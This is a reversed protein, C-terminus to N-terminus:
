RRFRVAPKYASGPIYHKSGDPAQRINYDPVTVFLAKLPTVLSVVLAIVLAITPPSPLARAFVQLERGLRRLTAGRDGGESRLLSRAKEKVLEHLSNPRTSEEQIERVASFRGTPSSVLSYPGAGAVSADHTMAAISSVHSRTSQNTRQHTLTPFAPSPSVATSSGISTRRRALPPRDDTAEEEKGGDVEVSKGDSEQSEGKRSGYSAFLRSAYRALPPDTNGGDFPDKYDRAILAIGRFPFVSFLFIM